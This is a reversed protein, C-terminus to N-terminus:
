DETFRGGDTPEQEGRWPSGADGSMLWAGVGENIWWEDVAHQVNKHLFVSCTKAVNKGILIFREEVKGLFIM